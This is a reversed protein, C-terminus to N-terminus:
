MPEPGKVVAVRAHEAWHDVLQALAIQKQHRGIELM